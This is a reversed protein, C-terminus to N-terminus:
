REASGQVTFRFSNTEGGEADEAVEGQLYLRPALLIVWSALWFPKSAYSSGL